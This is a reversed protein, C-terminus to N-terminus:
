YLYTGTAGFTVLDNKRDPRDVTWKFHSLEPSNELAGKIMLANDMASAEGTVRVTRFDSFQFETIRFGKEPLLTSVLHFIEVPNRQSELAPAVATWQEMALEILDADERNAAIKAELRRNEAELLKLHFLAAAALLCIACIGLVLAILARKRAAKQQRVVSIEHPEFEWDPVAGTTPAPRPLFHVPAGGPSELASRLESNEEGWVVVTQIEDIIGKASLEMLTLEIEGAIEGAPIEGLPQVHAWRKARSYGAVWGSNERWLTVANEAPIFLSYQPLFDTFETPGKTVGEFDWPISVAQVLTRAGNIEVPKWDSICGPGNGSKMGLKENEVAVVQSIIEEDKSSIWHPNSVLDNTPIAYIARQPPRAEETGDVAIRTGNKLHYWYRGSEDVLYAWEPYSRTMRNPPDDM